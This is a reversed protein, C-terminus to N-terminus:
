CVVIGEAQQSPFASVKVHFTLPILEPMQLAARYGVKVKPDSRDIQFRVAKKRTRSEFSDILKIFHSCVNDAQEWKTKHDWSNFSDSIISHNIGAFTKNCIVPGSILILFAVTSNLRAIVIKVM